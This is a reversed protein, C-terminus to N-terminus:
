MFLDFGWMRECHLIKNFQFRSNTAADTWHDVIRDRPLRNWQRACDIRMKRSFVFFFFMSLFPFLQISLTIHLTSTNKCWIRSKNATFWRNPVNPTRIFWLRKWYITANPSWPLKADTPSVQISALSKRAKWRVCCYCNNWTKQLCMSRIRKPKKPSRHGFRGHSWHCFQSSLFNLINKIYSIKHFHTTVNKPGLKTWLVQWCNREKKRVSVM